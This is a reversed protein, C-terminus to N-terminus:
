GSMADTRRCLRGPSGGAPQGTGAYRRRAQRLHQRRRDRADPERGRAPSSRTSRASPKLWAQEMGMEIVQEMGERSGFKSEISMTTAGDAEAITVTAITTPM